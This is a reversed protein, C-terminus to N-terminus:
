PVHSRAARVVGGGSVVRSVIAITPVFRGKCRRTSRVSGLPVLELQQPCSVSTRTADGHTNKEEKEARTERKPPRRLEVVEGFRGDRVPVALVRQEVERPRHQQRVRVYVLMKGDKTRSAAAEQRRRETERTRAGKTCVLDHRAPREAVGNGQFRGTPRQVTPVRVAGRPPDRDVEDERTADGLQAGAAARAAPRRGARHRRAGIGRPSPRNRDLPVIVRAEVERHHIATVISHHLRGSRVSWTM